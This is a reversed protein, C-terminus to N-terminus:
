KLNLNECNTCGETGLLCDTHIIIGCVPCNQQSEKGDFEFHCTLCKNDIKQKRIARKKGIKQTLAKDMRESEEQETEVRIKRAPKSTKTDQKRNNDNEEMAAKQNLKEKRLARKRAIKETLARDMRESEERETEVRNKKSPKSAETERKRKGDIKVRKGSETEKNALKRKRKKKKEEEESGSDSDSIPEPEITSRESGLTILINDHDSYYISRQNIVPAHASYPDKLSIYVHDIIRGSVRTPNQVYQRFNLPDKELTKTIVNEKDENYCLNFDGLVICTKNSEVEIMRKLQEAIKKSDAKDSRYVCIIDTTPSSIQSIQYLDETFFMKLSYEEKFFICLGKGKGRSNFHPPSYGELTFQEPKHHDQMWTETVCIVSAKLLAQDAKIDEFHKPMSWANILAVKLKSGDSDYWVPLNRNISIKHMRRMEKMASKSPYIKSEPLSDIIFLQNLEQIRSLAVYAQAAEFVTKLNVVLAQPKPITQGQFKHCTAAHSLKLPMQIVKATSSASYAKRSLSYSFEIRQIPTALKGPYEKELHKNNARTEQGVNEDFFHVYVHSIHGDSSTKFGLVEGRAGNTLGDNTNVNYTLMVKAGKKLCLENQFPTDTVAGNRIPPKFNKQTSHMHIANIKFEKGKNEALRANNIEDVEKNICSLYVADKPISSHNKRFVRGKLQNLDSQTHKGVRIRNLVEAYSRDEGQRHNQVLNIIDFTNWLPEIDYSIHYDKCSPKDFIFKARVPKLQGMDGFCVVAIGTVFCINCDTIM